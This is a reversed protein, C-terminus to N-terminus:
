RLVFKVPTVDFEKRFVVDLLKEVGAKVDEKSAKEMAKAGEGYIWALLMNPQYEVTNFGYIETVWSEKGTFKAKDEERWLITFSAPSKPWWPTTFEIYIKDLVCM